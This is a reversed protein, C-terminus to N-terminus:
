VLHKEVAEPAINMSAVSKGSRAEGSTYDALVFSYLEGTGRMRTAMQIMEQFNIIQLTSGESIVPTLNSGYSTIIVHGICFYM